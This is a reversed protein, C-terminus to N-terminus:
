AMGTHMSLGDGIVKRHQEACDGATCDSIARRSSIIDRRIIRNDIYSVYPRLQHTIVYLAYLTILSNDCEYNWEM